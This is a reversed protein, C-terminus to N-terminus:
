KLADNVIQLNKTYFDKYKKLKEVSFHKINTLDLMTLKNELDNIIKNKNALEKNALYMLDNINEENPNIENDNKTRNELYLKTLCSTLESKEKELISIRKELDLYNKNLREYEELNIEVEKEEEEKDESINNNTNINNINDEGTYSLIEKESKEEEEDEEKKRKEEEQKLKLEEQKKLEEEQRLKEEQEKRRQEEELLRQQEEREKEEKEEQEKRKKEEELKRQEQREKERKRMQEIFDDTAEKDTRKEKKIKKVKPKKEKKIEEKKEIEPKSEEEKKEEKIPQSEIEITNNKIEEQKTEPEINNSIITEKKPATEPKRKEAQRLKKNKKSNKFNLGIIFNDEPEPTPITKYNKDEAKTTEGKPEEYQEEPEITEQKNDNIANTKTKKKKGKNKNSTENLLDHLKNSNSEEEEENKKPKIEKLTEQYESFGMYNPMDDDKDNKGKKKGKKKKGKKTTDKKVDEALLEKLNEEVKKEEEQNIDSFYSIFENNNLHQALSLPTYGDKNTENVLNKLGLEECIYKTCNLKNNKVALHLINDNNWMSKDFKADYQKLYKLVDLTYEDSAPGAIALLTPTAGSYEKSFGLKTNKAKKEITIFDLNFQEREHYNKLIFDLLKSHGYFACAGIVNSFFANKHKKSLGIIGTVKKDVILKNNMFREFVDVHGSIAVMIAFPIQFELYSEKSDNIKEKSDDPFISNYFSLANIYPSEAESLNLNELIYKMVPVNHHFIAVAFLELCPQPKDKTLELMKLVNENQKMKISPKLYEIFGDGLMNKMKNMNEFSNLEKPLSM